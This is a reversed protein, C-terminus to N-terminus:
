RRQRVRGRRLRVRGRGRRVALARQGPRDRDGGRGTRADRGQHVGGRHVRSTRAAPDVNEAIKVSYYRIVSDTLRLNREVEEVCARGHRPVLLLPLHGQAAEQGRLRAQAQGLQRDEAAQRRGGRDRRPGEPEGAAICTAPATPACSTSPRTSASAARWTAPRDSASSRRPMPAPRRARARPNTGTHEHTERQVDPGHQWPCPTLASRHGDRRAQRQRRSSAQREQKGNFRNMAATLGDSVIAEVADAAARSSTPCSRRGRRALLRSLVYDAPTAGPRRGASASACGRSRRIAWRRSSRGCATTGATAAARAWSSASSRCTWSTTSSSRRPRPRGELLRRRARVAQGSVNM